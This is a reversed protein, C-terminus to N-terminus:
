NAGKLFLCNKQEAKCTILKVIHMIKGAILGSRGHIVTQKLDVAALLLTCRECSLTTLIYLRRFAERDM